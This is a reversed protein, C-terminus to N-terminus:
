AGMELQMVRRRHRDGGFPTTLFTKFLEQAESVSVHDGELVLANCNNHERAHVVDKKNRCVVARVYPYRNAAIAIGGGTRCFLLGLTHPNETPDEKANSIKEAVKKGFEPYDDKADYEEAGCDAISVLISDSVLSELWPYLEEKVAFGGHDTGIFLTNAQSVTTNNNM